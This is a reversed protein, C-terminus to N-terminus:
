IVTSYGLRSAAPGTDLIFDRSKEDVLFVFSTDIELPIFYETLLSLMRRKRGEPLYHVLESQRLPGVSVVWAPLGADLQDGVIWDLGLRCGGLGGGQEHVFHAVKSSGPVIQISNGLIAEFCKVTLKINGAIRCSLPLLFFLVSRKADPVSHEVQLIEEFLVNQLPNNFAEVLGRELLELEIRLRFFEQEIPLFFKRAAEETEKGRQYEELMKEVPKYAYTPEPEHFFAKPLTDYLGERSVGIEVIEDKKDKRNLPDRYGNVDIIDNSYARKFTGRARILLGKLSALKGELLGAVAVEMRIKLM